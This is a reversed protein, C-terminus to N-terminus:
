KPPSALLAAPGTGPRRDLFKYLANVIGDVFIPIAQRLAPDVVAVEVVNPIGPLDMPAIVQDFLRTVGKVAAAKVDAETTDAAAMLTPLLTTTATVLIELIERWSLGDKAKERYLAILAEVQTSITDYLDSGNM